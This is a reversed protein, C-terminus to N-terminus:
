QLSFNQIGSQSVHRETSAMGVFSVVITGGAQPLNLSYNGNGDTVVGSTTGKVTVSAGPLSQGDSKQTVKGTIRLTQAYGAQSVFCLLLAIGVFFKLRLHM